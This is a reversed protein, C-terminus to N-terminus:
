IENGCRGEKRKGDACFWDETHTERNASFPKGCVYYNSNDLQHGHKCDKCQILEKGQYMLISGLLMEHAIELRTKRLEKLLELADRLLNEMCDLHEGQGYHSCDRCADPVHCICREIDYIVKDIDAM